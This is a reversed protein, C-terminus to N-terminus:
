LVSGSTSRVSHGLTLVFFVVASNGVGCVGSGAVAYSGAVGRGAASGAGSGM